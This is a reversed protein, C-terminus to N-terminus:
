VPQYSQGERDKLTMEEVFLSFIYLASQGYLGTEDDAYAIGTGSTYFLHLAMNEDVHYKAMIMEVIDPVTIARVLHHSM